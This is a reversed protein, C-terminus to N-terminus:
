KLKHLAPYFQFLLSFLLLPVLTTLSPSIHSPGSPHQLRVLLLCLTRRRRHPPSSGSLCPWSAPILMSVLPCYHSTLIFTSSTLCNLHLWIKDLEPLWTSPLSSAKPRHKEIGLRSMFMSCRGPSEIGFLCKSCIM